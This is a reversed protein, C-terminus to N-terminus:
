APPLLRASAMEATVDDAASVFKTYQLLEEAMRAHNGRVPSYAVRAGTAKALNRTTRPM